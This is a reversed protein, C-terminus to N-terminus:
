LTMILNKAKDAFQFNVDLDLASQLAKKADKKRGIEYYLMGLHYYTIPTQKLDLSQQFTDMANRYQKQATYVQGLTDLYDASSKDLEIAKKAMKEAKELNKNNKTYLSALNNNVVAVDPNIAIARLYAREAAVDKHQTQLVMALNIWGPLNKPVQRVLDSFEKEAESFNQQDLHINALRFRPTTLAPNLKIMSKYLLIAKDTRGTRNYIQGLMQQPLPNQPELEASKQLVTAANKTDDGSRLYAVGLAYHAGAHDPLLTIASQYFEVAKSPNNLFRINLDGLEILTKGLRPNISLAKLLNEQATPYDEKIVNMRALSIFVHPNKNDVQQAKLIHMEAERIGGLQFSVEALGLWAFSSEELQISKRFAANAKKFNGESLASIGDYYFSQSETIDSENATEGSYSPAITTIAVASCSMALLFAVVITKKLGIMLKSEM